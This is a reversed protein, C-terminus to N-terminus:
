KNAERHPNRLSGIQFHWFSISWVNAIEFTVAAPILRSRGVVELRKFAFVVVAM